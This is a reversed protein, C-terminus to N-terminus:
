QVEGADDDDDDGDDNDDGDDDGGDDGDDDSDNFMMTTVVEDNRSPLCWPFWQPLLLFTHPVAEELLSM